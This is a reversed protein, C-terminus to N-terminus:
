HVAVLLDSAHEAPAVPQHRGDARARGGGHVLGVVDLQPAADGDLDQVGVQRLVAREQAAELGFGLGRGREAMGVDHGDEVPSGVLVDGVQHELVEAAPAQAGHEVPAPQEARRLGEQDAQLGAAPEVVRVAAAHDVPVDLGGVQEEALVAAQADGVEAQGAGDGLRRPRLGGADEEAGGPVGRRLLGLALGDVALRVHVRQGQCQDLRDSSLHWEGALRGHGREHVPEIAQHGHRGLESGEGRDDLPGAPRVRGLARGCGLQALAEDGRGLLQRPRGRQGQHGRARRQATAVGRGDPGSGPHGRGRRHTRRRDHGRGRGRGAGLVDGAGDGRSGETAAM